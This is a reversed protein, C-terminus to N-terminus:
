LREAAQAWRRHASIPHVALHRVGTHLVPWKGFAKKMNANVVEFAEAVPIRLSGEVLFGGLQGSEPVKRVANIDPVFVDWQLAVSTSLRM